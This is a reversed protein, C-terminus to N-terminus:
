PEGERRAFVWTVLRVPRQRMEGDPWDVVVTVQKGAPEGEIPEVTVNLQAAFPPPDSPLVDAAADQTIAQYPRATFRELVNAATQRAWLREDAARRQGTLTVLFQSALSGLASLVAMAIMVELMNLGRRRSNM